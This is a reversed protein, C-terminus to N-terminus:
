DSELIFEEVKKGNIETIGRAKLTEIIRTRNERSTYMRKIASPKIGGPFMIENGSQLNEKFGDVSTRRKAGVYRHWDTYGSHGYNDHDFAWWDLRGMENADIVFRYGYGSPTVDRKTARVFAGDAGGTGFDTGTSMGSTFIGADYRSRSSMLGSESIIDAALEPPLSSSADHYLEVIGNKKIEDALAQSHMTTHGHYAEVEKADKLAKRMAPNRKAMKDFEDALLAGTNDRLAFRNLLEPKFKAILRAKTALEVDATSPTKHADKVGIRSTASEFARMAAEPDKTTVRIRILNETAGKLGRQMSTHEDIGSVRRILHSDGVSQAGRWGQGEVLAGSSGPSRVAYAFPSADGHEDFYDRARGEAYKPMKFQFEYVTEGNEDVIERVRVDHGEIGDTDSFMRQGFRSRAQKPNIALGEGPKSPTTAKEKAAKPKRPGSPTYPKGEIVAKVFKKPEILNRYKHSVFKPNTHLSFLEGFASAPGAMADPSIRKGLTGEVMMSDVMSRFQEKQGTPMQEYIAKGIEKRIRDHTGGTASVNWGPKPESTELNVSIPKGPDKWMMIAGNRYEFDGVVGPPRMAVIVPVDGNAKVAQKFAPNKFSENVARQAERIDAHAVGEFAKPGLLEYAAKEAKRASFPATPTASMKHLRAQAEAMARAAERRNRPVMSAGISEGEKRVKRLAAQERVLRAREAKAAAEARQRAALEAARAEREERMRKAENEAAVKRQAAQEAAIRKAEVEKAKDAAAKEEAAKQADSKQGEVEEGYLGEEEDTWSKHWATVACRCNPHAPPDEYGGPFLEDVNVVKGHLGSCIRCLRRDMSADWRKQIEDDIEHASRITADAHINYANITETRVVREAWYRYRKFLGEAIFESRHGLDVMGKPGGLRVLRSTLQDVTENRLLGIAFQRQMDQWVGGSYRKASRKYHPVLAKEGTALIAAEQIPIPSLGSRFVADFTALEEQIHRVAFRGATTGANRLGDNMAKEIDKTWGPEKSLRAVVGKRAQKLQLMVQRYQHMTFRSDGGATDALWRDMAKAVEKEAEVMAPLLAVLAQKDLHALDDSVVDLLAKVNRHGAKREADTISPASSGPKWDASSRPM